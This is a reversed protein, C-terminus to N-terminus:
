SVYISKKKEFFSKAGISPVFYIYFRSQPQIKLTLVPIVYYSWFVTFNKKIVFVTSFVVKKFNKLNKKLIVRSISAVTSTTLIDL